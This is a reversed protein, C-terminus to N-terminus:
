KLLKDIEKKTLKDLHEKDIKEVTLLTAMEKKPKIEYFQNTDSDYATISDSESFVVMVGSEVNYFSPYAAWKDNVIVITWLDGSETRYNTEYEPRKDTGAEGMEEEDLLQGNLDYPRSVPFRDFGRETFQKKADQESLVKVSDKVKMTGVVEANNHYFTDADEMIQEEAETTETSGPRGGGGGGSSPKKKGLALVLILTLLAAAAVGLSIYLILNQKNMKKPEQGGSAQVNKKQGNEGNPDTEKNDYGCWPCISIGNTLPKHCKRCNM